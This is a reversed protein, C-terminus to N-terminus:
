FMQIARKSSRRSGIFHTSFENGLESFSDFSNLPLSNYWSSALGALSVEFCKCLSTENSYELEITRKYKRLFTDLDGIGNYTELPRPM